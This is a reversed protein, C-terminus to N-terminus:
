DPLNLIHGTSSWSGTLDAAGGGRAGGVAHGNYGNPAGAHTGSADITSVNLSNYNMSTNFCAASWQWDVNVAPHNATFKATFDVPNMGGPLGTSVDILGDFFINKNADSLPVNIHWKNESEDFTYNASVISSSITIESNPMELTYPSVPISIYGDEIKIVTGDTISGTLKFHANYWVNRGAPISTGNFNSSIVSYGPPPTGGGGGGLIHIYGGGGRLNEKACSFLTVSLILLILFSPFNKKM